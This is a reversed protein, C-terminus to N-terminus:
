YKLTALNKPKDQIGNRRLLSVIYSHKAENTKARRYTEAIFDSMDFGNIGHISFFARVDEVSPVSLEFKDEDTGHNIAKRDGIRQLKLLVHLWYEGLDDALFQIFEPNEKWVKFYTKGKHKGTKFRQTFVNVEM